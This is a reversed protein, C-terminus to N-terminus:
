RFQCLLTRFRCVPLANSRGCGCDPDKEIYLDTHPICMKCLLKGMKLVHKHQQATVSLDTRNKKCKFPVQFFFVNRM